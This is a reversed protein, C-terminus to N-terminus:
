RVKLRRGAFAFTHHFAQFSHAFRDDIHKFAARLNLDKSIMAEQNLDYFKSDKVAVQCRIAGLMLRRMVNM